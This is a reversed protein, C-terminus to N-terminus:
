QIHAKKGTKSHEVGDAYGMEVAIAAIIANVREYALSKSYGIQMGAGTVTFRKEWFVLSILRVDLPDASALVKEIAQVSSELQRITPESMIRFAIDETSRSASSSRSNDQSYKATGSPVMDSKMRRLAARDQKFKSLRWEVIGKVPEEIKFRNQSM